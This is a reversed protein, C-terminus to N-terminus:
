EPRDPRAAGTTPITCGHMSNFNRPTRGLARNYAEFDSDCSDFSRRGQSVSDADDTGGSVADLADDDLSLPEADPSSYTKKKDM